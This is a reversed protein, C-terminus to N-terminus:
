RYINVITIWRNKKKNAIIGFHYFDVVRIEYEYMCYNLM